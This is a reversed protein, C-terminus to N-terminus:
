RTGFSTGGFLLEAETRVLDEVFADATAYHGENVKQAVFDKLSDPLTVNV